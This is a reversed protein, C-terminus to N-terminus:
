NRRRLQHAFLLSIVGPLSLTTTNPEPVTRTASALYVELNTYGQDSLNLGNRDTPDLPNLHHMREFDDPMGDGDQDFNAPRTKVVLDDLGALLGTPSRLSAQTDIIQGTRNQLEHIIKTDIADRWLSAGVQSVVRAYAADGAIVHEAVSSLFGFPQA